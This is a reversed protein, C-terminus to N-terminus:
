SKVDLGWIGSSVAFMYNVYFKHEIRFEQQDIFSRFYFFVQSSFKRRQLYISSIAFVVFVIQKSYRTHKTWIM